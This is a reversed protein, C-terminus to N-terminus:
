WHGSKIYIINALSSGTSTLTRIDLPLSGEVERVGNGTQLNPVDRVNRKVVVEVSVALQFLGAGAGSVVNGTPNLGSGSVSGKRPQRPLDM